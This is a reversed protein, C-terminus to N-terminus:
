APCGWLYIPQAVDIGKADILGVLELVLGYFKWLFINLIPPAPFPQVVVWTKANINSRLDSLTLQTRYQVTTSRWYKDGACQSKLKLLFSYNMFMSQKESPLELRFGRMCDSWRLKTRYQVTTFWWYKDGACQFKLKLLFFLEDMFMPQKESWLELRFGKM